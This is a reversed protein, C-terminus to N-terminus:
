RYIYDWLARTIAELSEQSCKDPTDQTTAYEPFEFDILLFSPIGIQNLATHDDRILEKRPSNQFVQPDSQKASAWFSNITDEIVLSTDPDKYIKLNKKCVMDIIIGVKPKLSPYLEKYHKAFYVSGHPQWNTFDSGQSIDGEEGDFFVIDIGFNEPLGKEQILRVLNVLVAVGSASNNAGPSPVKKNDTDRFSIKQSDYHSGIIIRQPAKPNMRVIINTLPYNTGNADIHEWTQTVVDQALAKMEALIFAQTQKYGESTPYRPGFSVLQHIIALVEDGEIKKEKGFSRQLVKGTLYDTPSYNDTLVPYMSFAFRNPDIRKHPLNKILKNENYLIEKSAFDIQKNSNYGIFIINQSTISGPDSTAFFYSNPFVLQFTRMESLIFSPDRRSLDGIMNAMFVGDKDLKSKALKFFEITTFHSPISFFSYYVDSFILDYLKKTDRLFKRGDKEHIVLRSSDEVKFYEKSLSFLTPEIESVDIQVTESGALLAKPISYAGGGIVLANTLKKTFLTYISYYKTYDFVLDRSDNSDLFMAGSISHDQKFFRTPRGSFQGDLITIKEYVGDKSYVIKEKALSHTTYLILGSFIILLVIMNIFKKKKHLFFLAFFGLSFLIVSNAIMINRIGFHPILLFGSAISGTISGLTSWFFISGSVTGMGQEPFRFVQLKIAYPSLMGLLFAPFLFLIISTLLPGTIISFFDDIIPIIIDGIAFFFLSSIGSFVIIGFFLELRPHRDAIKGGVYYGVSLALLIVSIISSTTFITNGFYPSLIRIAVIEIVLVCAGTVFVSFPLISKLLYSKM